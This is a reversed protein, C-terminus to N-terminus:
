ADTTHVEKVSAVAADWLAGVDEVELARALAMYQAIKLPSQNNMLRNVTRLNLGSRQEITKNPIKLRDRQNRLLQVVAKNYPDDVEKKRTDMQDNDCRMEHPRFRKRKPVLCLSVKTAVTDM